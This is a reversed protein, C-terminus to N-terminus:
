WCYPAGKCGGCVKADQAVRGCGSCTNAEKAKEVAALNAEVIGEMEADSVPRWSDGEQQLQELWLVLGQAPEARATINIWSQPLLLKCRKVAAKAKRLLALAQSPPVGPISGLRSGAGLLAYCSRALGLDSRRREALEIARLFGSLRATRSDARLALLAALYGM